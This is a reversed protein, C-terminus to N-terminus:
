STEDRGRADNLGHSIWRSCDQRILGTTWIVGVDARRARRLIDEREAGAPLQAAQDRLDTAFSVRREKFSQAQKLRNRRLM